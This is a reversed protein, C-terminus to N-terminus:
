LNVDERGTQTVEVLITTGDELKVPITQTRDDAM